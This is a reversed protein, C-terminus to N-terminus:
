KGEGGSAKQEVAQSASLRSILLPLASSVVAGVIAGILAILLDRKKEGWFSVHGFDFVVHRRINVFLMRFSWLIILANGAIRISEDYKLEGFISKVIYSILFLILVSAFPMFNNYLFLPRRQKRYIIENIRSYVAYEACDTDSIYSYAAIKDFNMRMYPTYSSIELNVPHKCKEFFEEVNDYKYCGSEISISKLKSFEAFIEILDDKSLIIPGFNISKSKSIKKM